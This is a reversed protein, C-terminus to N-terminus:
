QFIWHLPVDLRNTAVSWNIPSGNVSYTGFPCGPGGQALPNITFPAGIITADLTHGKAFSYLFGLTVDRYGGDGSGITTVSEGDCTGLYTAGEDRIFVISRFFYVTGRYSSGTNGAVFTAHDQASTFVTNPATFTDAYVTFNGLPTVSEGPSLGSPATPSNGSCAVTVAAALGVFVVRAQWIRSRPQNASSMSTLFAAM